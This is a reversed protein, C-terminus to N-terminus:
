GLKLLTITISLELCNNLIVLVFVFLICYIYLRVYKIEREKTLVRVDQYDFDYTKDESIPELEVDGRIHRAKIGAGLLHAHLLIGFV